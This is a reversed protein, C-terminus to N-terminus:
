PTEPAAPAEAGNLLAQTKFLFALVQARTCSEYPSFSNASTGGTVNHEVAWLVPKYYYKEEAVDAFPNEATEPEPKGAAIWLFTLIQGRTCKEGAGLATESVGSTIGHELAWLVPKYFYRSETVDTFPNETAAPEPRGLSVWLFTMAEARTITDKPAFTTPSKGATVGNFYAWDIPDHAWNGEPPMDTFIVSACRLDEKTESCRSCTYLATGHGTEPDETLTETYTWIHGLAPIPEYRFEGCGTCQYSTMGEDTCTPETSVTGADWIHCDPDLPLEETKAAGCVM